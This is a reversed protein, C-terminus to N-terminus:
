LPVQTLTQMQIELWDIHEDIDVSMEELKYRTTYDGVKDCHAIAERFLQLGAM